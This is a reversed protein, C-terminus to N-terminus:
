ISATSVIEKLVNGKWILCSLCFQYVLTYYNKQNIPNVEGFTTQKMGNDTRELGEEMQLTKTSKKGVMIDFNPDNPDVDLM